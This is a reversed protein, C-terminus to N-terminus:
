SRLLFAVLDRLEQQTLQNVLGEPMISQKSPQRQEVDNPHVYFVVGKQDVYRMRGDVEDGVHIGTLVEGDRKLITYSTFQPAIERSPDVLSQVLRERTMSKGITSLEPGVTNGRGEFEHCRFCGAVRSHYFIREGVEPSGKGAARAVWAAIDQHNPLDTPVVTLLALGALEKAAGKGNIWISWIQEAESQTLKTGRLGRLAECCVEEVDSGVLKLLLKRDWPREPWLALMAECREQVSRKENMAIERLAPWWAGEARQRLTRIAELRMAPDQDALLKTLLEMSLAPHDARLSRIAFRRVAANAAPNRLLRAVLVEGASEARFDRSVGFALRDLCALSAEFLQRNTAGSM